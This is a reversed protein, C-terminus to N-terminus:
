MLAWNRALPPPVMAAVPLSASVSLNRFSPSRTEAFAPAAALLSGAIAAASMLKLTRGSM